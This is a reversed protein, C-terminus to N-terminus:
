APQMPQLSAIFRVAFGIEFVRTVEATHQHTGRLLIRSKVPPIIRARILAEVSSISVITGERLTGTHDLFHCKKIGPEIKTIESQAGAGHDIAIAHEAAMYALKDRMAPKYKDNLAVKFGEPKKAAVVGDLDGIKDLHLHVRAGESLEQSPKRRSDALQGVQRRM